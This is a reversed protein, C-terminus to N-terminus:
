WKRASGNKLLSKMSLGRNLWFLFRRSLWCCAMTDSVGYSTLMSGDTMFSLQYICFLATFLVLPNHKGALRRGVMVWSSVCIILTTAINLLVSDSLWRRFTYLGNGLYKVIFDNVESYEVCGILLIYSYLILCFHRWTLKLRLMTKCNMGLFNCRM